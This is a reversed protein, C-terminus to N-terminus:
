GVIVVVGGRRSWSIARGDYSQLADMVIPPGERMSDNLIAYARFSPLRVKETDIGPLPM